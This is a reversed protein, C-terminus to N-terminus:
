KGWVQVDAARRSIAVLNLFGFVLATGGALVWISAGTARSRADYVGEGFVVLEVARLILGVCLVAACRITMRGSWPRWLWTLAVIGLLAFPVPRLWGDLLIANAVAANWFMVLAVLALWFRLAYSVRMLPHHSPLQSNDSVEHVRNM